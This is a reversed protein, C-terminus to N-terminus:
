FRFASLTARPFARVIIADSKRKWLRSRQVKGTFKEQKRRDTRPMAQPRQM